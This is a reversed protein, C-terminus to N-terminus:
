NGKLKAIIESTILMVYNKGEFEIDIGGFGFLIIDGKAVNMERFVGNDLFGGPGVEVVKGRRLRKEVSGPLLIGGASKTEKIEEILVRDELLEIEM